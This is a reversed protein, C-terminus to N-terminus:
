FLHRYQQRIDVSKRKPHKFVYFHLTQRFGTGPWVGGHWSTPLRPIVLGTNPKFPVRLAVRFETESEPDPEYLNTGLQESAESNNLYVIFVAVKQPQDLHVPMHFPLQENVLRVALSIDDQEHLQYHAQQRIQTKLVSALDRCEQYLESWVGRKATPLKALTTDFLFLHYRTPCGNRQSVPEMENLGPFNELLTAFRDQHFVTPVTAHVFPTQQLQGKLLIPEVWSSISM